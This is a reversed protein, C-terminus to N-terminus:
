SNHIDIIHEGETYEMTSYKSINMIKMTLEGMRRSQEHIKVLAKRNPDDEPVKRLLRDLYPSIVNLPQNMEHCVAGAMELVGRLKEQQKEEELLAKEGTIDQIIVLIDPTASRDSLELCHFDLKIWTAETSDEKILKIERFPNDQQASNDSKTNQRLGNLFHQLSNRQAQKNKTFGVLDLFNRGRLDHMSFLTECYQSYESNIRGFADLSLIGLPASKMITRVEQNREEVLRDLHAMSDKISALMLNFAQAVKGLQHDDHVPMEAAYNGERISEITIIIEDILTSRFTEKEKLEIYKETLEVLSQSPSSRETETNQPTPEESSLSSESRIKEARAILEQASTEGDFDIGVDVGTKAAILIRRSQNIYCNNNHHEKCQGCLKGVSELATDLKEPEYETRDAPLEQLTNNNDIQRHSKVFDLLISGALRALKPDDNGKQLKKLLQHAKFADSHSGVPM